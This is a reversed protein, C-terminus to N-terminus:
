NSNEQPDPTTVPEAQQSILDMNTLAKMTEARQAPSMRRIIHVITDMAIEPFEQFNWSSLM